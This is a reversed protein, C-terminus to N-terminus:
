RYSPSAYLNVHLFMKAPLTITPKLFTKVTYGHNFDQWYDDEYPNALAASDTSSGSNTTGRKQRYGSGQYEDPSFHEVRGNKDVKAITDGFVISQIQVNRFEDNSCGTVLIKSTYPFLLINLRQLVRGLALYKKSESKVFNKNNCSFNSWFQAIECFKQKLM